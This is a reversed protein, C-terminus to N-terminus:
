QRKHAQAGIENRADEVDKRAAIWLRGVEKQKEGDDRGQQHRPPSKGVVRHEVDRDGQETAPDDDDIDYPEKETGVEDEQPLRGEIKVVRHYEQEHNSGAIMIPLSQLHHDPPRADDRKQSLKEIKFQPIDSLALPRRAGEVVRVLEAVPREQHHRTQRHDLLAVREPDQVHQREAGTEVDQHQRQGLRCRDRAHKQNQQDHRETSQLPCRAQHQADGQHEPNQELDRATTQDLAEHAELRHRVEIVAQAGDALRLVVVQQM